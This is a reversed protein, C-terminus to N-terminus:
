RTIVIWFDGNCEPEDDPPIICGSPSNMDYCLNCNQSFDLTFPGFYLALPYCTSPHPGATTNTVNCILCNDSAVLQFSGDHNCRLEFDISEVGFSDTATGTGSDTAPWTGRWITLTPDSLYEMTWSHGELCSARIRYPDLNTFLFQGSLTPYMPTEFDCMCFCEYCVKKETRLELLKFNDFKNLHGTNNHGIASFRGDGASIDSWSELENVAPSTGARIMGIQQDACVKFIYHTTAEGGGWDSITTSEDGSSPSIAIEWRNSGQYTYNVIAPGVEDPGTCCPYIRYVDGAQVNAIPVQIEIYM